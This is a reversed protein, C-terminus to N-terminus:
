RSFLFFKFPYHLYNEAFVDKGLIIKKKNKLQLVQNLLRDQKELCTIWEAAIQLNTQIKTSVRILFLLPSQTQKLFNLAKLWSELNIKQFGIVLVTKYIQRGEFLEQLRNLFHPNTINLFETQLSQEQYKQIVFQAVFSDDGIVLVSLNQDVLQTQLSPM